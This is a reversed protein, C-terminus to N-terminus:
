EQELLTLETELFEVLEKIMEESFDFRIGAKEYVEALSKSSGLAMAEKYNTLTQNKNEKYQRYMQVAGLQAIVYEIYYFPVEFIHLVGLWAIERWKEFGSWDVFNSDIETLLEAYKQNREEVSHNPYEYLWHQFQDIVVGVPLFQIIGKMQEKKARMFDAKTPYFQEWKDMTLLEMTMSALESSEMPTERYIQLPLEKKFDNHICHGMEHFLTIMDDHTKAHNMFIFSLESIPLPACFGGPSKGKRSELDLMGKQNMQEILEAFRPDLEGLVNRVGDILEATNSFPKLREEGALVASVDWPLYTDVGLKKAHEKQLKEKLPKVHKAISAALTKCDEPSYDFREYKKFMYDRYNALNAYEAKKQRIEILESMIKQLPEESEIFTERIATMAKKRKKRDTDQLFPSLQPLTLQEGEWEVVAAGTIEFYNTALRDEEIELRVNEKRFLSEANKKRKLMFAYEEEPLQELAKSALLKQDLKAEYQKVLPEIVEQDQEFAKKAEESDNYSNFDIYHGTLAEEIADLLKTEEQLYFLIEETSHLPLKLLQEFQDSLQQTNSFDIVEQYFKTM